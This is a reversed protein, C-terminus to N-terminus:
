PILVDHNERVLILQNEDPFPKRGERLIKVIESIKYYLGRKKSYVKATEYNTVTRM